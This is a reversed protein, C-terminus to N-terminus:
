SKFPKKKRRKSKRVPEHALKKAEDLAKKGFIRQMAEDTTMERAKKRKPETM